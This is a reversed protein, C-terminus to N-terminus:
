NKLYIEMKYILYNKSQLTHCKIMLVKMNYEELILYSFTNKSVRPIRTIEM